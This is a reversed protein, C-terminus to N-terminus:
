SVALASTGVMRHRMSMSTGSDLAESLLLYDQAIAPWLFGEAKARARMRMGNAHGDDELIRRLEFAIGDPDAQDVLAGSGDGLLEIAHPFRTSIVPKGTVMAEILVGSTVQDRSDYPLLLVDAGHIVQALTTSDLYRDIFEVGDAVELEAARRQLSERYREGESVRVKPHTQGAIVYRADVGHDRLIGLADIGWEIGKGQSLLGWTLITPKGDDPISAHPSRLDASGHPIVRVKREDIPYSKVLNRRGSETMTVVVSALDLAHQFVYRQHLRPNKVVTHAVLIVPVRLGSMIGLIEDGDDGDYIGFEHQVIVVDYANLIAATAFPPVGAIHQHVVVESPRHQPGDVLRVVGVDIGIDLLGTVLSQAFTAIGCQTPPYTSIM